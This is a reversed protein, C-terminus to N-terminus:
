STGELVRLPWHVGRLPWRLWQGTAVDHARACRAEQRGDGRLDARPLLRDRRLLGVPPPHVRPPAPGVKRLRRPVGQAGQARIDQPASPAMRAGRRVPAAPSNPERGEAGGSTAEQYLGGHGGCSGPTPLCPEQDEQGPIHDDEVAEGGCEEGERDVEPCGEEEGDRHRRRRCPVLAGNRGDEPGGRRHGEPGLRGRPAGLRRRPRLREFARVVRRGDECSTPLPTLLARCFPASSVPRPPPTAEGGERQVVRQRGRVSCVGRWTGTPGMGGRASALCGMGTTTPGRPASRHGPPPPAWLALSNCLPIMKSGM